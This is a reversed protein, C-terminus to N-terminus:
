GGDGCRVVLVREFSALDNLVACQARPFAAEAIARLALAQGCGFELALVGNESLHVAAQEILRRNVDLGSPGGYLAFRPEYDRIEPALAEMEAESVYPLNAVMVDFVGACDLLDGAVVAIRAGLGARGVNRRAIERAEASAEIATVRVSPANAAIAIAVAGTGTGVDAIRPAGGRLRAEALAVEVLLETEPRPILAGPACLMDIGYFERRGIIYALPEHGRRRAVLAEFRAAAVADLREPLMALVHARDVTLAAALLVESELRADDSVSELQLSAAHLHERVMGAVTPAVAARSVRLDRM